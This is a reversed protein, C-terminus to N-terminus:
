RFRMDIEVYRIDEIDRGRDAFHEYSEFDSWKNKLITDAEQSGGCPIYEYDPAKDGVFRPMTKRVGGWPHNKISVEVGKVDGKCAMKFQVNVPVGGRNTPIQYITDKAEGCQLGQTEPAPMLACASLLAHFCLTAAVSFHSRMFVVKELRPFDWVGPLIDIM